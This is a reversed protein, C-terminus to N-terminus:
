SLVGKTPRTAVRGSALRVRQSSAGGTAVSASPRKATGPTGAPRVVTRAQRGPSIVTDRRPIRRGCSPSISITTPPGIAVSRPTTTSERVPFGIANAATFRWASSRASSRKRVRVTAPVSPRKVM